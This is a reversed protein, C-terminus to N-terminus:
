SFQLEVEYGAHKRVNFVGNSLILYQGKIGWFEAEILPEKELNFNKKKEPLNNIPYTFNYVLDKAETIFDKKPFSDKIKSLASKKHTLLETTNLFLTPSFLMKTWITKDKFYNKLFVEVKGALLRNPTYGLPLAQSAGQDCWRNKQQHKRTIGVKINSTHALYITHPIFCNKEGWESDRCTTLHYHCLEPKIQCTDTQPLKKFCPFCYGQQFSQNIKRGCHICSIKKTFRLKIKKQLFNNLNIEEQETIKLTYSVQQNENLSTSMKKLSFTTIFSNNNMM